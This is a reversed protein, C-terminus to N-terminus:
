RAPTLNVRTRRISISRAPATVRKRRRATPRTFPANRTTSPFQLPATRRSRSCWSGSWAFWVPQPWLKGTWSREEMCHCPRFSEFGRGETKSNGALMRGADGPAAQSNLRVASISQLRGPQSYMHSYWNPMTHSITSRALRRKPERFKEKQSPDQGLHDRRPETRDARSGVDVARRVGNREIERDARRSRRCVPRLYVVRHVLNHRHRKSM